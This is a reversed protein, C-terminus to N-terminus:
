SSRKYNANHRVMAVMRNIGDELTNNPMADVKAVGASLYPLYDTLFSQMKGQKAQAGQAVRAIGYNTMSAQWDSLTVRMTGAVFKPKAQTVRALWKDAAKAASAGPSVTVNAVGRQIATTSNSLNTVWKQTATQPDSRVPM